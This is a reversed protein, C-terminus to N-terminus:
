LFTILQRDPECIDLSIFRVKLKASVSFYNVRLQDYGCILNVVVKDVRLCFRGVLYLNVEFVSVSACIM